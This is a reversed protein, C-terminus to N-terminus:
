DKPVAVKGETLAQLVADRPGDIVTRGGDMIILRNVLKLLAPKHTVIIITKDKLLQGLNHLVAEETGIDMANTPEDLIVVPTDMLLTRALAVAQRQGGSLGEGREGVPADYGLPHRRIFADVGAATAARLVEEDTARPNGMVINERVTGSMLLTDQGMYAINRRLDAPDLQRMDTDDALVTGETPVYFDVLLKVLTSKGSGIRGSIALKEGANVSLNIGQLVPRETRPYAFSVNQLRFAGKLRPRHLFAKGRPREVPQRMIGDLNRYASKAQHYRNVLAALAGVPAIARSSLIICAMLAGVSIERAEVAYMGAVM